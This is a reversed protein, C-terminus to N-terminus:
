HGQGSCFCIAMWFWCILLWCCCILLRMMPLLWSKSSRGVVDEGGTPSFLGVGVFDCSSRFHTSIVLKSKNGSYNTKLKIQISNVLTLNIKMRPEMHTNKKSETCCILLSRLWTKLNLTDRKGFRGHSAALSGFSDDFCSPLRRHRCASAAPIIVIAIWYQQSKRRQVSVM